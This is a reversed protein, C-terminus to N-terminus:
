ERKLSYSIAKSISDIYNQINYKEITAVTSRKMDALRAPSNILDVLVESIHEQDLKEYILGNTGDILDMECGDGVGCIVPLGHCLMDSVALGGLGPMVFVDMECALHAISGKVEGYFYVLYDIGFEKCLKVMQNYSSGDGVIHLEINKGMKALTHVAGILQDLRKNPEIAGIFFVRFSDRHACENALRYSYVQALRIDTDVVNVAVFIKNEDIGISKYYNKGFTSYSIIADARREIPQILFNLFTRVGSAKRGKIEGLGWQIMSKNFLRCYLFVAINNIFNSAGECVVVDPGLKVLDFFLGFSVPVLMNGSKRKIAIPLSLMKKSNFKYPGPGSVVKTGKFDCGYFVTLDFILCLREFVPVRWPQVVRYVVAVKLKDAMCSEVSLFNQWAGKVRLRVPEFILEVVDLCIASEVEHHLYTM